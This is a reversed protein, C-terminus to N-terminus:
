SEQSKGLIGQWAFSSTKSKTKHEFPQIMELSAVTGHASSFPSWGVQMPSSSFDAGWSGETGEPGTHRSLLPQNM